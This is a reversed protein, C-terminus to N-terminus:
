MKNKTVRVNIVKERDNPTGRWVYKPNIKYCARATKILYEAEVLEKICDPITRIAIDLESSIEEKLHKLLAVERYNGETYELIWAFIRRACNNPKEKKMLSIISEYFQWFFEGSVKKISFSTIEENVNESYVNDMNNEDVVNNVFSKTMTKVTKKYEM